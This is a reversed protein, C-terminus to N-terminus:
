SIYEVWPENIGDEGHVVLLRACGTFHSYTKRHKLLRIYEHLLINM